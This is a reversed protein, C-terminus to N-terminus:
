AADLSVKLGLRELRKVTRRITAEKSREDFYNAGLDQYVTGDKLVHYSIRVISHAVAVLAKKTGKRAALRHYQAALYTDKTHSAAWACEVLLTRLPRNGQGIRASTRTGGSQHLGPCLGTWSALHAASPFRSMDTGITAVIEQAARVGVGPITDLRELEDQFPALQEGIHRDLGAIKEDLFTIHELQQALLWRQNDRVTGRLAAELESSSAKLRTQVRGALRQPDEEGAIIGELMARGSVGLVDSIVGTLKINASELVKQIRNAERSREDVLRRRYRVLEQVDRQARDPIFSPKLLGHRLLDAIWEADKVDTKRGPVAKIHRANALILAFRDELLNYLPKWYVGTSEMAVHSCGAAALWDGLALLDATMTSFSRLEKHPQGDAGPTILCAAITKKHIDLGCCRVYLVEM